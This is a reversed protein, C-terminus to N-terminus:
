LECALDTLIYIEKCKIHALILRVVSQDVIQPVVSHIKGLHM